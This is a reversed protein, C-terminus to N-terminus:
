ATRLSAFHRPHRLQLFRSKLTAPPYQCFGWFREDPTPTANARASAGTVAAPVVICEIPRFHISPACTMAIASSTWTGSCTTIASPM